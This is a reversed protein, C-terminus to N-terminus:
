VRACGGAPTANVGQARNWPMKGLLTAMMCIDTLGAFVLGCGVFLALGHFAPHVALGLATFLTVMGGAVIRVQRELSMPAKGGLTEFPRGAAKWAEFGGALVSLETFGMAALKERAMAARKGSRCILQIAAHRDEGAMRAEIEGLPILQAGALFGAAYEPYERVDILRMTFVEQM